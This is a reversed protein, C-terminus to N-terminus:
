ISNAKKKKLPLLLNEMSKFCFWYGLKDNIKKLDTPWKHILINDYFYLGSQVHCIQKEQDMLEM